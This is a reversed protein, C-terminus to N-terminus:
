IVKLKKGLAQGPMGKEFKARVCGSNGHIRLIEGNIKKGAQSEWTVKKNLLKKAKEISDVGEIKLIMQNNYHRRASWKYNVAVAEM